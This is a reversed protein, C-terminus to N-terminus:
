GTKKNMRSQACATRFEPNMPDADPFRAPDFPAPDVFPELGHVLESVLRGIGGSWAIGAGSCGTALMLNSYTQAWGILPLADPTYSSVGSLYHGLEAQELMPCGQILAEWNEELALWGQPDNEFAYAHIDDPLTNPDAVCIQSDRVGFLLSQGEPRFYANAAPYIAMPQDRQITPQASSIWYHSRVPAMALAVGLSDALVTSWPGAALVLVDCGIHEGSDLTVGTVQDDAHHIETVRSRSRVRVGAERADQLYLQAFLYPDAHGDHPFWVGLADDPISLWPVLERVEGANKWSAEVGLSRANQQFDHLLASQEASVAIHVCGHLQAFHNDQQQQLRELAQHTENVMRCDDLRKRARTLLAAAQSTTGEGPNGAELLTVRCQGQRQIYSAISLGLIGGGIILIHKMVVFVPNLPYFIRGSVCVIREPRFYLAITLLVTIAIM